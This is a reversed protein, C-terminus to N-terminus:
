SIIAKGIIHRMIENTGELIQHVRVDRVYREINYDHLYGYGGHLQLAENCVDFGNDTALMKAMACHTGAAPHGEDLLSAAHRIALRACMLKSAMDALKFQVSQNKALPSGFQKRDKTYQVASEFCAQAAGLSCAGINLRGGDLGAMAIRFGQGEEGLRHSLPIRVDELIVQKTPQCKWGMKSENLGFSLGKTGNPVIMCSIGEKTKCMVLYVDSMSAGSIFSKSGNIIYEQTDAKYIATTSLSAADSGSDPETLCYSAKLELSCLKPLYEERQSETGFKDVLGVCMNHISLMATTGVCGGSLAEYIVTADVRSLGSSVIGGFGLEGFKKYTDIPFYQDKDWNGAFPKMEQDSFDKALRYFTQQDETLGILPSVVDVGTIRSLNSFSKRSISKTMLKKTVDCFSIVRFSMM